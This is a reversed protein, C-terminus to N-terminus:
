GLARLCPITHAKIKGKKDSSSRLREKVGVAQLAGKFRQELHILDLKFM